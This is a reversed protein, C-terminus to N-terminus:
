TLAASIQKVTWNHSATGTQVVARLNINNIITRDYITGGQIVRTSVIGTTNNLRTLVATANIATGARFNMFLEVIITDGTVSSAVSEPNFTLTSGGMVISYTLTAAPGSKTYEIIWQMKRSRGAQVAANVPFSNSALTLPATPIVYPSSISTLTNSTSSVEGIYVIGGVLDAITAVVNSSSPANAGVLADYADGPIFEQIGIM